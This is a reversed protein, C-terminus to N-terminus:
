YHIDLFFLKFIICSLKGEYQKMLVVNNSTNQPLIEGNLRIDKMCGNFGNGAEKSGLVIKSKKTLQLLIFSDPGQALVFFTIILM